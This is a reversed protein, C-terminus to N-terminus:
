GSARNRQQIFDLVRAFVQDADLGTTDLDQADPAARLAAVSRTADRTDREKMDQLVAAYIPAEGRGRLEEFRRRAREEPAARLFIKVEAEPCVVTGIDRGDLVAGAQGGPPCRAFGRQFELLLARVAPMAALVSAARGVAEERLAPDALTAPDLTAAAAAAVAPDAPDHGARLVALAVARYIAGTDLYAFGLHAALRRALTGKGAGSPGDIAIIM